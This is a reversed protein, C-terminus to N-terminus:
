DDTPPGALSSRTGVKLCDIAWEPNIPNNEPNFTDRLPLFAKYWPLWDALAIVGDREVKRLEEGRRIRALFKLAAMWTIFEYLPYKFKPEVHTVNEIRYVKLQTEIGYDHLFNGGFVQPVVILGLDSLLM